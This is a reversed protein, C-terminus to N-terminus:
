SGPARVLQAIPGMRLALSYCGGAPKDLRCVPTRQWSVPSLLYGAGSNRVPREFGSIREGVGAM